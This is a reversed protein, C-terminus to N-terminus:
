AGPQARADRWASRWTRRGDGVQGVVPAMLGAADAEQHAELIAEALRSIPVCADTSIAECGPKLSRAAWYANHRATWLATREEQKHAWRLDSGGHHAAIEADLLETRTAESGTYLRTLDYGAASKRARGGTTIIDRNPTVVTLGLTVDRM